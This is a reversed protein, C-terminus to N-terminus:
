FGNIYMKSVLSSVSEGEVIVVCESTDSGRDNTAVCRYKGSDSPQSNIIEITIVGDTHTIPYKAPDLEKGAKLWKIQYSCIALIFLLEKKHVAQALFM